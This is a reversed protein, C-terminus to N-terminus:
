RRPFPQTTVTYGNDSAYRAVDMTLRFEDIYGTYGELGAVGSGFTLSLSSNWVNRVNTSIGRMVGDVYMRYKTGDFDMAVAYWTNAAITGGSLQAIDNTGDTSVDLGVVDKSGVVWGNDTGNNFTWQGMLAQIGTSSPRFWFEITFKRNSLNWDQSDPFTIRSNGSFYGSSGGFVSYTTRIAASGTVVAIGHNASSEDIFASDFSMLLKVNNWYPDSYPNAGGSPPSCIGMRPCFQAHAPKLLLAPAAILLGRRTWM